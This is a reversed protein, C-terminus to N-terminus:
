RSELATAIRDLVVLIADLTDILREAQSQNM